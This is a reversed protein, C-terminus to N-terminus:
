QSTSHFCELNGFEIRLRAIGFTMAVDVKESRLLQANTQGDPRPVRGITLSRVGFVLNVVDDAAAARNPDGVLIPGDLGAAQDEHRGSDLVSEVVDFLIQANQDEPRRRV